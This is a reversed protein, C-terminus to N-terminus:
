LLNSAVVSTPAHQNFWHPQAREIQAGLSLLREDDYHAGYLMAGIPLGGEGRGAPLALSPLGTENGLATYRATNLFRTFWADFPEDHLLSSPGNALPASEGTAPCLLVDADHFLASAAAAIKVNSALSRRLDRATLRKSAELLGQNQQELMGGLEAERLGREAAIDQWALAAAIWGVEFADWMSAWHCIREEDVIEVHHGLGDLLAAVQRIRTALQPDCYGPRGWAGVSVLVRLPPPDIRLDTTYLPKPRSSPHISNKARGYGIRGLIASQDRVTRTMFGEHLRYGTLENVEAPLPLLGRTPKLAVLGTFAAPVRISGAGDGGKAIPVVGAAVLAASGGSSGGATHQTNWPNRTSRVRGGYSTTTDFAKGFEPVASRGILIFGADRIRLTLPCDADRIQGAFLRAGFECLRARMGSGSDKMFIPVGEFPGSPQHQPSQPGDAVDAFVEVVAELAPDLVDAAHAAQQVVEQM